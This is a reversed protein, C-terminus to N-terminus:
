QSAKAGEFLKAVMLCPRSDRKLGRAEVYADITTRQSDNLASWNRPLELSVGEPLQVRVFNSQAAVFGPSALCALALLLGTLWVRVPRGSM